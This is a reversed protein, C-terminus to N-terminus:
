PPLRHYSIHQHILSVMLTVRKCKECLVVLCSSLFKKSVIDFIWFTKFIHLIRLRVRSPLIIAKLVRAVESIAYREIIILTRVSILTSIFFICFCNMQDVLGFILVFCYRGIEFVPTKFVYIYIFLYCAKLGRPYFSKIIVRKM